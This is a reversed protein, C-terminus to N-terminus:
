VPCSLWHTCAPPMKPFLAVSTLSTFPLYQPPCWVFAAGSPRRRFLDSRIPM